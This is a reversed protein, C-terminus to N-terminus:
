EQLWKACIHLLTSFQSVSCAGVLKKDVVKIDFWETNGVENFKQADFKKNEKVTNFLDIEVLWGPNDLTQISIGYQHEWDGDCNSAYWANIKSISELSNDM